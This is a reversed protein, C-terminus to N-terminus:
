RCLGKTLTQEHPESTMKESHTVETVQITCSILVTHQPRQQKFHRHKQSSPFLLFHLLEDSITVSWMLVLNLEFGMM